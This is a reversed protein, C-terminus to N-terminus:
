PKTRKPKRRNANQEARTAWRCNHPEYNGDSEIRDITRDAPRAGMDALFNEFQHWQPCVSIGRGGYDKFQPHSPDRCRALMARWTNYTPTRYYGHRHQHRAMKEARACGCSTTEGKRLSAGRVEKRAGCDCLCLYTTASGKPLAKAEVLLRGFRQGELEIRKM